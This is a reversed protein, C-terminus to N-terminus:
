QPKFDGIVKQRLERIISIPGDVKAKRTLLAQISNMKGELIKHLTESTCTVTVAADQKRNVKEVKEVKGETIKVWYADGDTFM